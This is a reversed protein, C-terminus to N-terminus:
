LSGAKKEPVLRRPVIGSIGMRVNVTKQKANAAVMRLETMSVLEPRASLDAMMQVMQEFHAEFTVSIPAEGYADAFPHITGLEVSRIEVPPSQAAAIKRVIQLVQEQAQNATDAEILGKERTALEAAAQKLVEEKGPVRAVSERMRALELEAASITMARSPSVVAPVGPGSTSLVYVIVFFGVVGLLILARKDRPTLKLKM